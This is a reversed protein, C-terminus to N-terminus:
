AHNRTREINFARIRLYENETWNETLTLRYHKLAKLRDAPAALAASQCVLHALDSFVCFDKVSGIQLEDSSMGARDGLERELYSQLDTVSVTRNKVMAQRLYKLARQQTTMVPDKVVGRVPDPAVVRPAKLAHASLPAGTVALGLGAGSQEARLLGEVAATVLQDLRGSSRLKYELHRIAKQTARDVSENLRDLHRDIDRLLLHSAIDKEFRREAEPRPVGLESQYRDILAERKEADDRLAQVRSVINWRHKLPHDETRLKHYDRVYVRAIYDQFFQRVFAATTDQVSLEAAVKRVLVAMNAIGALMRRAAKATEQFGMAQEAPDDWVQELQNYIVQVQGGLQQPGGEALQWLLELLHQILPTMLLYTRAGVTTEELWGSRVLHTLIGNARVNLPTDSDEGAEALWARSELYREIESTVVRHPVGELEPLPAEPGFLNEYLRLLLQWYQQRNESTLPSFLHPSVQDFLNPYSTAAM